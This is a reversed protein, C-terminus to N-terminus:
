CQLEKWQAVDLGLSSFLSGQHLDSAKKEDGLEFWNKIIVQLKSETDDLYCLLGNGLKLLREEKISDIKKSNKLTSLFQLLELHLEWLKDDPMLSLFNSSTSMTSSKTINLSNDNKNANLGFLSGMIDIGRINRMQSEISGNLFLQDVGNIILQLPTTSNSVAESQFWSPISLKITLNSPNSKDVIFYAFSERKLRKSIPTVNLATKYFINISEYLKTDLNKLYDIDWIKEFQENCVIVILVDNFYWFLCNYHNQVKDQTFKLKLKKVKYNMPLSKEALPSILFGHRINSYSQTNTAKKTSGSFSIRPIYNMVMSISNSIGTTVGVEQIADYAFSIPLTMNHFFNKTQNTLNEGFNQPEDDVPTSMDNDNDIVPKNDARVEKYHANGSLVHSSLIEYTSHLHYLWNSVDALSELDSAFNRILGYTKGDQREQFERKFNTPLHYVLIDSIGLYNEPELLINQNLSSEWSTETSTDFGLEAIKYADPWLCNLGKRYLSEPKLILDQWFLIFHENLSNTLQSTNEFSNFEGFQLVFFKYCYWLNALYLEQPIFQKKENDDREESYSVCLGIFYQSEINIIFIVEDDLQVIKDNNNSLSASLNKDTLSGTLNWIGQIIGIKSLKDNLTTQGNEFSYYLLLQKYTDDEDTSRTPDFITIYKFM